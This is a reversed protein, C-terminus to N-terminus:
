RLELFNADEKHYMGKGCVTQVSICCPVIYAQDPPLEESFSRCEKASRLSFVFQCHQWFSFFFFAFTMKPHMLQFAAQLACSTIGRNQMASILSSSCRGWRSGKTQPMANWPFPLDAPLHGFSLLSFSQPDQFYQTNYQTRWCSSSSAPSPDKSVTFLQQLSFFLFFFGVLVVKGGWFFGWRIRWNWQLCFLFYCAETTGRLHSSLYTSFIGHNDVYITSNM